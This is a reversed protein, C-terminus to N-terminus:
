AGEVVEKDVAGDCYRRWAMITKPAEDDLKPGSGKGLELLAELAERVCYCSCEPALQASHELQRAAECLYTEARQGKSGLQTLRQRLEDRPLPVSPGNAGESGSVVDGRGSM